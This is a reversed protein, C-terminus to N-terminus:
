LRFYGRVLIFTYIPVPLGNSFKSEAHFEWVILDGRM